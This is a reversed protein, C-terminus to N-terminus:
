VAIAQALVEARFKAPLSRPTLIDVPVGLATQLEESIAGLDALSMGPAPDILLDLDSGDLDDGSVASGFARVNLGRHAAVIRRIEPRHRELALSPRM